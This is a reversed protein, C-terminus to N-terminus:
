RIEVPGQLGSPHYQKVAVHWETRCGDFQEAPHCICPTLKAADVPINRGCARCIGCLFFVSRNEMASRKLLPIEAPCM